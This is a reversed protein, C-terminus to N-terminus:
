KQTNPKVIHPIPTKIVKAPRFEIYWLSLFGLAIAVVAGISILPRKISRRQKETSHPMATMAISNLHVHHTHTDIYEKIFNGNLNQLAEVAGMTDRMMGKTADRCLACDTM